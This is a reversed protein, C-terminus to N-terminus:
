SPRTAASRMVTQNHPTRASAQFRVTMNSTFFHHRMRWCRTDGVMRVFWQSSRVGRRKWVGVAVTQLSDCCRMVFRKPKMKRGHRFKWGSSELFYSSKKLDEGPCCHEVSIDGQCILPRMELTAYVQEDSRSTSCKDVIQFCDEKESSRAYLRYPLCDENEHTPRDHRPQSAM